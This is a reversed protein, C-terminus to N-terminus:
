KKEVEPGLELLIIPYHHYFGGRTTYGKDLFKPFTARLRKGIDPSMSQPIQADKIHFTHTRKGDTLTITELVRLETDKEGKLIQDLYDETIKATGVDM